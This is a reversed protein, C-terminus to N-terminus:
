RILIPFSNAHILILYLPRLTNLYPIPQMYTNLNPISDGHILIPYLRWTNLNPIAAM